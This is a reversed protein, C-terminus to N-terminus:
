ITHYISVLLKPSVNKVYLIKEVKMGIFILEDSEASSESLM